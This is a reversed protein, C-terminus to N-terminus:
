PMAPTTATATAAIATHRAQGATGEAFPTSAEEDASGLAEEAETCVATWDDLAGCGDTSRNGRRGHRSPSRPRAWHLSAPKIAQHSGPPASTVQQPWPRTGLPASPM